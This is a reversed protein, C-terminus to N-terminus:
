GPLRGLAVHIFRPSQGSTEPEVEAQLQRRLNFLETINSRTVTTGNPMTVSQGLKAVKEIADEVWVLMEAPTAM